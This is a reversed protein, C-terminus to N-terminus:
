FITEDDKSGVIIFIAKKFEKLKKLKRILLEFRENAM